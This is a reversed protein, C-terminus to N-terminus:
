DPTERRLESPSQGFFEKFRRFFYSRSNFGAEEAIESISQSTSAILDRAWRLRKELLYSQFTVGHDQHFKRSFYCPSLSVAEAVEELTIPHRFYRDIYDIESPKENESPIPHADRFLLTDLLLVIRAFINKAIPIADEEKADSHLLRLLLEFEHQLLRMDEDSQCTFQRGSFRLFKETMTANLLNNAFHASYVRPKEDNPSLAYGHYDTDSSIVLTGPQIVNQQGSLTHTCTGEVFFDLEFFNHWHVAVDEYITLEICSYPHLPDIYIRTFNNANMFGEM